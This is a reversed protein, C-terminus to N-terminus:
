AEVFYRAVPLAFAAPPEMIRLAVQYEGPSHTPLPPVRPRQIVVRDGFPVFEQITELVRFGTTDAMGPEAVEWQAKLAGTGNYRIDAYVALDPTDLPVTIERRQNQFMLEVRAISFTAFASGGPLCTV